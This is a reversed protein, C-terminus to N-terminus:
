IATLIIFNLSSNSLLYIFLKNIKKAKGTAVIKNDIVACFINFHGIKTAIVVNAIYRIIVNALNSLKKRTNVITYVISLKIVAYM